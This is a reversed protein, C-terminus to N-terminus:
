RSHIASSSQWGPGGVVFCCCLLLIARTHIITSWNSLRWWSSVTGQWTEWQHLHLNSALIGWKIDIAPFGLNNLYGHMYNLSVVMQPWLNLHVNCMTEYVNVDNPHANHAFNQLKNPKLLISTSWFIANCFIYCCDDYFLFQPTWKAGDCYLHTSGIAPCQRLTGPCIVHDALTINYCSHTKNVAKNEWFKDNQNQKTYSSTTLTM